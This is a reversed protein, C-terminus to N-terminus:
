FYKLSILRLKWKNLWKLKVLDSTLWNLWSKYTIICYYYYYTLQKNTSQDCKTWSSITQIPLQHSLFVLQTLDFISILYLLNGPWFHSLRYGPNKIHREKLVAYERENWVQICPSQWQHVCLCFIPLTTNYLSKM